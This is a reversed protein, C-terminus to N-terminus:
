SAERGMEAIWRHLTRRSVGAAAAARSVNGDHAALLRRVYDGRFARLAVASAPEWPEPPTRGDGDPAGAAPVGSRMGEPLDALTLRADEDMVVLRQALNRLERVNGPWAYRLLVERTEPTLVPAPRGSAVAFRALFAHLLLDVDNGRARLPPVDLRVVDLRYLLDARFAGNAVRADLDANTAAVLRVNVEIQQTGGVRRVRGDELVRLLKAQLAPPLETVEDLFVTGGTAEIFLGDKRRAAGTFAGAEHGFLESELLNEPLATCDIPMFPRDRRASQAHLARAVLEKGTGSEGLILVPADTPAVKRLRELLRQMPASEGLLGERAHVQARLERNEETLRRHRVAREVAVSLQDATFPKALYDFAGERMAHVASAVTAHGTVIIVPLGPDDALAVTLLTMGDAGPMKLDLVLASPAVERLVERFRLPDALTHCEYGDRSLVRVGNELAAPEDDVLLVRTTM